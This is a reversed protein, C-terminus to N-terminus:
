YASSDSTKAESVRLKLRVKKALDFNFARFSARQWRSV